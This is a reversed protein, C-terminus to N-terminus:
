RRSCASALMRFILAPSIFIMVKQSFLDFFPNVQFIQFGTIKTIKQPFFGASGAGSVFYLRVEHYRAGHLRPIPCSFVILLLPILDTNLVGPSRVSDTSM